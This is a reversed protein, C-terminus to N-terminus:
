GIVSAARMLDDIRLTQRDMIEFPALREAYGENEHVAKEILRM